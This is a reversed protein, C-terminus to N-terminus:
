VYTILDGDKFITKALDTIKDGSNIIFWDAGASGTLVDGNSLQTEDLVDDSFDSNAQHLSAWNHLILRLQALSSSECGVEGAVLVDNGASGVLRDSGLGGILLDNGAAGTVTDNGDGGLLVDDGAGCTILDNGSGAVVVANLNLASLDIRDDGDRTWIRVETIGSLSWAQGNVIINSRNSTIVDVGDSGGIRLIGGSSSVGAYPQITITIIATDTKPDSVGDTTGDDTVTYIFTAIGGCGLGPIFTFSGDPNQTLTGHVDGVPAISVITLTQGSENAPGASDNGLLQAPLIVLTGDEAVTFADDNATPADNVETVTVAVTGADSKPDSVGNTTGNDQITYSITDPGNYDPSPSYSLTGDGNIDVSGHLASTSLVTLTQGSENAPGASDNALVNITNAVSDEAVTATDPNATPDDNVETVTISVSAEDSDLAPSSGDGTDTVKFNFSDSGNYDGNPTYILNAGSGSLTGHAPSQTITFILSGASTEIDSGTLTIAQPTDEDTTLSQPDATPTDNVPTVTITFTQSVSTDQGGNATGGDDQLTVTVTAFGNADPAPTYTLTGDAAIGPQVSFLANNDNSVIFNLMQWSENAPGASLNTAWGAISQAGADELVAQDAGETFTPADNVATVTMHVTATSCMSASGNDCVTYTFSDPGNFDLSPTYSVGTGGGTIAVSGNTGNSTATVALTQTPENGTPTSPDDNALVDIIAAGSDELVTKTDDVATPPTNFVQPKDSVYRQAYIGNRAYQGYIGYPTTGDQQDSNWTVVFDGNRDMAVAPVDQDGVTTTNVRFETSQAVAAADYRQAYVGWGNRVDDQHYSQWTVVFDGGADIAVAPYLQNYSTTSNVRFEGGQAVGTSNYRQAFIGPFDGPGNGWWTVVFDGSAGMAVASGGQDGATTSNVRFEGALPVGAADYRQAFVGLSDGPGNGSWTVVFDGSAGMAVATNSQIGATTSNVRFQSGLAVGAADFRQAYVGLDNNVNSEYSDWTVVFNGGADMAVQAFGFRTNTTSNVQFAAGQAAGASNYRQAYVNYSVPYNFSRSEWTVVFNGAPDMAVKGGYPIGDTTSDVRFEGGQAVGAADFRQAYVGHDQGYNASHNWTVVFNGASDMAVASDSQNGVTTSNVLFEPGASVDNVVTVTVAVTGAASMPDSVGNTTGDDQITYSITDPGNYDPNPSYSLTGDGNIAVSGHLASASLVTLTQGSENAPGASDNALVNITNGVSDAAVTATDPNATPADNVEIVTISVSAADSDLATDTPTFTVSLTQGNGVNLVTGAPPTYVFSGSVNATANLQTGSLATGYVIDAPNAWSLTATAKPALKAVFADNDGGNFSADFGGSVWGSSFTIGTVLANGTADVAIGLGSDDNSGGLYTSWIHGGSPNIKAVFADEGGNYSTDFGGSVWGSSGTWGTVLANGSADTAISYGVDGSSGGLYTSWIHGGSPSIKGVFADGDGNQSTDFGGSAWGSSHTQGTVLVNSGADVAIGWGVEHSSGGLYTSWLHNGASSLKIVVADRDGNFSTDFGGSVWGSSSTYGTVLVNGFADAAIGRGSDNSSGGLYTSWIHGGSPSIKAVFIDDAGNYSTDFGGSVWDPSTTSGTSSNDFATSPM